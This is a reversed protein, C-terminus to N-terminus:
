RLLHYCFCNMFEHSWTSVIPPMCKERTKGACALVSVSWATEIICAIYTLYKPSVSRSHFSPVVHISYPIQARRSLLVLLTFEATDLAPYSASIFHISSVFILPYKLSFVFRYFNSSLWSLQTQMETTYDFM